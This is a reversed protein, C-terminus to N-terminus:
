EVGNLVIDYAEHITRSMNWSPWIDTFRSGSADFFYQPTGSGIDASEVIYIGNLQLYVLKRREDETM